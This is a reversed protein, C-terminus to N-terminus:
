NKFDDRTFRKGDVTIDILEPLTSWMFMDEYDYFVLRALEDTPRETYIEPKHEKIYRVVIERKPLNGKLKSM